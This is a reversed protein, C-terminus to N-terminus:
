FLWPHLKLLQNLPQHLMSDRKVEFVLCRIMNVPYQVTLLLSLFDHPFSNM